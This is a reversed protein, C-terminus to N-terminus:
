PHKTHTEQKRVQYQYGSFNREVNLYQRVVGLLAVVTRGPIGNAYHESITRVSATTTMFGARDREPLGLAFDNILQLIEIAPFEATQLATAPRGEM